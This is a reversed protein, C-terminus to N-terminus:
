LMEKYYNEWFDLPSETKSFYIGSMLDCGMREMISYQSIREIGDALVSIGLGKGIMMISKVVLFDDDDIDLREILMNSIIIKSVDTKRIHGLSSYGIGFNRLAITIGSEKFADFVQPFNKYIDFLFEGTLSCEIISLPLGKSQFSSILTKLFKLLEVPIPPICLTVKNIRAGGTLHKELDDTVTQIYWENLDSLLGSHELYSFVDNANVDSFESNNWRIDVSLDIIKDTKVDYQPKYIIDFDKTVDVSRIESEFRNRREMNRVFESSFYVMESESVREKAVGMAIRARQVMEEATTADTPYRAISLAFYINFQTGNVKYKGFISRAIRKSMNQIFKYTDDLFFVGFEDASLRLLYCEDGFENKLRNAVMILVEDGVDHGYTSNINKFDDINIAMLSFNSAGEEVLEDFKSVFFHKSYLGTLHDTNLKNILKRNALKLEETKLVAKQELLLNNKHESEIVDDHEKASNFMLNINLNLFVFIMLLNLKSHPLIGLFYFAVIFLCLLMTMKLDSFFGIKEDGYPLLANKEEDVKEPYRIGYFFIVPFITFLLSAYLEFQGVVMASIVLLLEGLVFFVLAQMFFVGKMNFKYKTLVKTFFVLVMSGLTLFVFSSFFLFIREGVLVGTSLEFTKLVSNFLIISTILALIVDVVLQRFFYADYYFIVKNFVNYIILLNCVVFAMLIPIKYPNDFFVTPGFFTNILITAGWIIIAVAYYLLGLKRLNDEESFVFVVTMLIAYASYSFAVYESRYFILIVNVALYLPTIYKFLKRADM